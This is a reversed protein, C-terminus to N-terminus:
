LHKVYTVGRGDVFHLSGPEVRVLRIGLTRDIVDNVRYVRDNILVRSDDGLARVGGVRLTGIVATIKEDPRPPTPAAAPAPPNAAVPANEAPVVRAPVSEVPTARAPVNAPAVPSPQPPPTSAAPEPRRAPSSPAAPAAPLPANTAATTPAEAPAPRAAPLVPVIAPAATPASAPAPPRSAPAVAAAKRPPTDPTTWFLTFAVSLVVLVLAGSGLVLLWHRAPTRARARGSAGAGLADTPTLPDRDRQAKKLADNILSM